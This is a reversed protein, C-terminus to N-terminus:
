NSFKGLMVIIKSPHHIVAFIFPREAIFSLQETNESLNTNAATATGKDITTLNAQQIYPNLFLDTTGTIGSLDAKGTFIDSVGLKTLKEKVNIRSSIKLKPVKIYLEKETLSTEITNILEASLINELEAISMSANPLIFLLALEQEAPKLELAQFDQNALYLYNNKGTIYHLRKTGTNHSTFTGETSTFNKDFTLTLNFLDAIVMRTSIKIEKNFLNEINQESKSFVWDNIRKQTFDIDNFFDSKDFNLLFYDNLYDNFEKQIYNNDNAWINSRYYSSDKNALFINNISNFTEKFRVGISKLNKDLGLIDQMQKKTENKSGAYLAALHHMISYTAVVFSDEKTAMTQYLKLSFQNNATTIDFNELLQDQLPIIKEEKVPETITASSEVELSNTTSKSIRSNKPKVEEFQINNKSVAQATLPALSLSCALIILLIIKTKHKLVDSLIHQTLKNILKKNVSVEEAVDYIACILEGITTNLSSQSQHNAANKGVKIPKIPLTHSPKAHPNIKKRNSNTVKEM